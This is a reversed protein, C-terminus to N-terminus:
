PPAGSVKEPPSTFTVKLGPTHSPPPPTPVFKAQVGGRLSSPDTGYPDRTRGSPRPRVGDGPQRQGSRTGPSRHRPGSTRGRVPACPLRAGAGRRANRVNGGARAGGGRPQGARRAYRLAQLFRAVQAARTGVGGAGRAHVRPTGGQATSPAPTLARPAAPAWPRGPTHLGWGPTQARPLARGLRERPRHTQFPRLESTIPTNILRLCWSM